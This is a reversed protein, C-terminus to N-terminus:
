KSGMLSSFTGSAPMLHCPIDLNVQVTLKRHADAQAQQLVGAANNTLAPENSAVEIKDVPAAANANSSNVAKAEKLM